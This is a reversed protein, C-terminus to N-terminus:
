RRNVRNRSDIFAFSDLLLLIRPFWFNRTETLYRRPDFSDLFRTHKGINAVSTGTEVTVYQSTVVNWSTSSIRPPNINIHLPTVWNRFVRKLSYSIWVSSRKPYFRSLLPHSNSLNTPKWPWM